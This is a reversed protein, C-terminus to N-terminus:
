EFKKGIFFSYTGEYFRSRASSQVVRETTLYIIDATLEGGLYIGNEFFYRLGAGGGFKLAYGRNTTDYGIGFVPKLYPDWASETYFHYGANVELFVIKNSIISNSFAGLGALEYGIYENRLDPPLNEIQGPFRDATRILRRSFRNDPVRSVRYERYDIGAGLSWHDSIGREYIFGMRTGDISVGPYNQTGAYLAAQQEPSGLGYTFTSDFGNVRLGKSLNDVAPGGVWFSAGGRIEVYHSGESFGRKPNKKVPNPASALYPRDPNPDSKGASSPKETDPDPNQDSPKSDSNQDQDQVYGPIRGPGLSSPDRRDDSEASLSVLHGFLSLILSFIFGNKLM